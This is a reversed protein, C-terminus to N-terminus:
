RLILAHTRGMCPEVRKDLYVNPMIARYYNRLEYRSLAGSALAESGIFARQAQGM